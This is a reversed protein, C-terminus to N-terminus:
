EQFVPAVVEEMVTFGVVPVEYVTVAVFALPHVSVSTIVTFTAGGGVAETEGFVVIQEPCDVSM